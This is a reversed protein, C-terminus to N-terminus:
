FVKEDLTVLDEEKLNAAETFFDLLRLCGTITAYKTLRKCLTALEEVQWPKIQYRKSIFIGSDM